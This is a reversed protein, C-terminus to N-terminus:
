RTVDGACATHCYDYTILTEKQQISHFRKRKKKVGLLTRLYHGTALLSPQLTKKKKFSFSKVVSFLFFEEGIVVQHRYRHVSRPTRLSRACILYAVPQQTVVPYMAALTLCLSLSLSLSLSMSLSLCVSLCLSLSVSLCVYLSLSLCVSLSLSMSLSLARARYAPAHSREYRTCVRVCCVCVYAGGGGCVRVYACVGCTLVPSM